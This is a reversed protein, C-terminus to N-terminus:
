FLLSSPMISCTSLQGCRAWKTRHEPGIQPFDWIPARQHIIPPVPPHTPHKVVYRPRHCVWNIPDSPPTGHIQSPASGAPSLPSCQHPSVTAKVTAFVGAISPSAVLTWQSTNFRRPVHRELPLRSFGTFNIQVPRSDPPCPPRASCHGLNM